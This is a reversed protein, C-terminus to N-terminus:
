PSVLSALPNSLWVSGNEECRQDPLTEMIEVEEAQRRPM